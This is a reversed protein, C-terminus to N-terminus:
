RELRQPRREGAGGTGGDPETRATAAAEGRFIAAEAALWDDLDHGLVAGRQIYRFYAAERIVRERQGPSIEGESPVNSRGKPTVSASTKNAKAM